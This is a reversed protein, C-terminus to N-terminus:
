ERPEAMKHYPLNPQDICTKRTNLQMSKPHRVPVDKFVNKVLVDEVLVDEVLMDEVLMGGDIGLPIM